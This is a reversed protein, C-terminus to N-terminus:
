NSNTRTLTGTLGTMDLIRVVTESMDVVALDIGVRTAENRAVILARVGASDLFWVRGCNLDIRRLPPAALDHVTTILRPASTTDLEGAVNVAACDGHVVVDIELKHLEDAFM